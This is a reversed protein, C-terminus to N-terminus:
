AGQRNTNQLAQKAEFFNMQRAKKLDVGIAVLDGVQKITSLNAAARKKLAGIMKGAGTMSIGEPREVGMRKLADIQGKSAPNSPNFDWGTKIPVGIISGVGVPDYTVMKYTARHGGLTISMTTRERHIREAEDIAKMPERQAGSAMLEAAIKTVEDDLASDDFLDITTCLEHGSTTEWAFDLVLVDRKVFGTQENSYPRTGRGIMQTYRGRQRTPRMIVVCSVQPCDWGEILLDCCAIVQYKFDFFDDLAQKRADPPMAGSVARAILGTGDAAGLKCLCDAVAEASGVDPCFVVTQRDGIESKTIYSLSEVHPTIRAALEAQDFDGGTTKINRLDVGCPMRASVIPALWGDRIASRLSYEYAVKTFIAGLNKGDGRDPTATIGLANYDRFYDYIDGYTKARSHHCEDTIITGFETRGRKALRAGKLTQVTAICVDPRGFLSAHEDYKQNGMEIGPNLGMRTFTAMTQNILEYRHALFLTQRGEELSKKAVM